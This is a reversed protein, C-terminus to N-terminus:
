TTRSIPPVGEGGVEDIVAGVQADHLQQEAMGIVVIVM